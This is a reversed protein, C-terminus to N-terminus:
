KILKIMRRAYDVKINAKPFLSHEYALRGLLRTLGHRQAEGSPHHDTFIVEGDRFLKQIAADILRTTEGTRRM